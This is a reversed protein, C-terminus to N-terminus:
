ELPVEHQTVTLGLPSSDILTLHAVGGGPAEGVSGVNVIRVQGVFRDFPVHSGGCVVLDAPDDGLLADMEEDAMDHTFPETPDTPSGHVLLLNDGTEIPLRATTPLKGLRALILEGLEGHIERLRTLRQQEAPTSAVLRSPDLRALARDSVGQVCVARQETLTRWVRLPEPGPFCLDGCVLLQDFGLIGGYELAATLAAFHGHVDSLCLFRM